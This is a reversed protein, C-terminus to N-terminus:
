VCSGNSMSNSSRVLDYNRLMDNTLVLQVKNKNQMKAATESRCLATQLLSLVTASKFVFSKGM